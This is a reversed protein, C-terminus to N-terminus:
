VPSKIAPLAFIWFDSFERFEHHSGPKPSKQRTPNHVGKELHEGQM